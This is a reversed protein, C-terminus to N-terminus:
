SVKEKKTTEKIPFVLGGCCIGHEEEELASENCRLGDYWDLGEVEAQTYIKGCDDCKYKM